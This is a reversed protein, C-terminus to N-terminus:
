HSTKSIKLDLIQNNFGTYGTVIERAEIEPINNGM